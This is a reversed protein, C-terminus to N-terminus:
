VRRKRERAVLVMGALLALALGAQGGDIEPVAQAQQHNDKTKSKHIADYFKQLLHQIFNFHKGHDAAFVPASVTTIACALTLTMLLKKM